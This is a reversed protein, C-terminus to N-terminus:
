ADRRRRNQYRNYTIRILNLALDHLSRVEAFEKLGHSHFSEAASELAAETARAIAEQTRREIEARVEPDEEGPDDDPLPVHQAQYLERMQRTTPAKMRRPGTEDLAARILAMAYPLMHGVLELLAPNQRPDSPGALAREFLGEPLKPADGSTLPPAETTATM